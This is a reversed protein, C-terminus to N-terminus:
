YIHIPNSEPSVAFDTESAAPRPPDIGRAAENCAFGPSLDGASVAARRHRHVGGAPPIIKGAPRRWRTKMFPHASM